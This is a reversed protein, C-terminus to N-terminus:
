GFFNIENASYHFVSPLACLFRHFYSYFAATIVRITLAFLKSTSNISRCTTAVDM